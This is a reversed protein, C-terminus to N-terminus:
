REELQSEMLGVFDVGNAPPNLLAAKLQSWEKRTGLWQTVVGNSLLVSVVIENSWLKGSEHPEEDAAIWDIDSRSTTVRAKGNILYPRGSAPCKITSSFVSEQSANEVSTPAHLNIFIDFRHARWSRQLEAICANRLSSPRANGTSNWALWLVGAMFALCALCYVPKRSIRKLKRLRVGLSKLALPLVRPM